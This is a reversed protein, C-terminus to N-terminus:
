ALLGRLRQRGLDTLHATVARSHGHAAPTVEILGKAFLMERALSVSTLGCGLQKAIQADKEHPREHSYYGLLLSQLAGHPLSM